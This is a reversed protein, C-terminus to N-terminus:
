RPCVRNKLLAELEDLLADASETLPGFGNELPIDLKSDALTPTFKKFDAFLRQPLFQSCLEDSYHHTSPSLSVAPKAVSLSVAHLSQFSAAESDPSPQRLAGGLDSLSNIAGKGVQTTNPHASLEPSKEPQVVKEPAKWTVFGLLRLHIMAAALDEQSCPIMETFRKFTRRGDTFDLVVWDLPTLPSYDPANLACRHAIVMPDVHLGDSM